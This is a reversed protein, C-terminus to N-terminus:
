HRAIVVLTANEGVGICQQSGLINILYFSGKTGVYLVDSAKNLGEYINLYLYQKQHHICAGPPLVQKM